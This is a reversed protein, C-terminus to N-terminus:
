RIATVHRRGLVSSAVERAIGTIPLVKSAAGMQAAAKPMGYVVSTAEDQAITNWGAVRLKKLGEAGDRGMGTLLVAVAPSPWHEALSSFFVDVSPRYIQDVPEARYRYSGGATMVLHEETAAMVATGCRPVMGDVALEVRIGSGDHLWSALGGMFDSEIHQVIAIAAPLDKPLGALVTLLAQPGGTSAGIAILPPLARDPAPALSRVATLNGSTHGLLRGATRLKALLAAAGIVNGQADLLPTAVTDLAGKGMAEYVESVNNKGGDVLLVVACRGRSLVSDTLAAPSMRELAAPVLLVDVREQDFRELAEAGTRACWPVTHPTGALAREIARQVKAGIVGVKV